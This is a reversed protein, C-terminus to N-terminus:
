GHAGNGHFRQMLPLPFAPHGGSILSTLHCMESEIQKGRRGGYRGRVDQEVRGGERERGRRVGGSRRRRQSSHTLFRSQNQGERWTNCGSRDRRMTFLARAHTHFFSFYFVFFCLLAILRGGGGPVGRGGSGCVCTCWLMSQILAAAQTTIKLGIPLTQPCAM